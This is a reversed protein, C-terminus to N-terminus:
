KRAEQALASLLNKIREIEREQATVKALLAAAESNVAPADPPMDSPDFTALVRAAADKQAQTTGPAFDVRWSARDTWRGVSVGDVPCVASVAEHLNQVKSM